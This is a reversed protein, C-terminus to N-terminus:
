GTRKRSEMAEFYPLRRVMNENALILIEGIRKDAGGCHIAVYALGSWAKFLNDVTSNRNGCLELFRNFEELFYDYSFEM